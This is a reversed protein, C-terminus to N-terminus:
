PKDEPPDGFGFPNYRNHFRGPTYWRVAYGFKTRKCFCSQLCGCTRNGPNHLRALLTGGM